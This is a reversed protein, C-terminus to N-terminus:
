AGQLEKCPRRMTGTQELRQYWAYAEGLLHPTQGGRVCAREFYDRLDAQGCETVIVDVDHENHDVHPAMPVISSIDGDRAMSKTVFISLHANRAFDGSGGIGNMMHTGGAHTSNVNGYIGAELATNIAIIGLRRVLKPAQSSIQLFGHVLGPCSGPRRARGM